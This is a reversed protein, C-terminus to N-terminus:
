ALILKRLVLNTHYVLIVHIFLEKLGPKRSFTDLHSAKIPSHSVWPCCHFICLVFCSLLSFWHLSSNALTIPLSSSLLKLILFFFFNQTNSKKEGEGIVQLHILLPMGVTVQVVTNAFLYQPLHHSAWPTPKLLPQLRHVLSKWLPLQLATLSTRFQQKLLSPLLLELSIIM